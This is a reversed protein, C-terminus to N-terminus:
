RSKYNELNKLYEMKSIKGAEFAQQNQKMLRERQAEKSDKLMAAKLVPDTASKKKTPMTILFMTSILDVFPLSFFIAILITEIKKLKRGTIDRVRKLDVIRLGVIFAFKTLIFSTPLSKPHNLEQFFDEFRPDSKLLIFINNFMPSNQM